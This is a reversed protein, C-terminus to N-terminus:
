RRSVAGLTTLLSPSLRSLRSSLLCSSVVSIGDPRQEGLIKAAGRGHRLILFVPAFPTSLLTIVSPQVTRLIYCFSHQVSLLNWLYVLLQGHSPFNFGTLHLSQSLFRRYASILYIIHLIFGKLHLMLLIIRYRM